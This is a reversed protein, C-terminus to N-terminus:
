AALDMRQRRTELKKGEFWGEVVKDPYSRQDWELNEIAHQRSWTPESRVLAGDFFLEYGQVPLEETTIEVSSYSVGEYIGQVPYTFKAGTDLM